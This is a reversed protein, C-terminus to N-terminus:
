KGGEDKLIANFFDEKKLLVYKYVSKVLYNSRSFNTDRKKEYYTYLITKINLEELNKIIPVFDSDCAILIIKKVNPFELPVKMLDMALLIDVAKQKFIFEGNLKLRQCRGERVIVNKKRLKNVFKDYGYKKREEEKTPKGSQFPPATHYYIQKCFLKQKKALNESFTILDYVLYKGKGFHGSLKSLFNSDVFILTENIDNSFFEDPSGKPDGPLMNNNTNIESKYVKHKATM